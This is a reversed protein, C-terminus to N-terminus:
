CPHHYPLSRSTDKDYYGCTSLTLLVHINIIFIWAFLQNAQIKKNIGFLLQVKAFDSHLSGKASAGNNM